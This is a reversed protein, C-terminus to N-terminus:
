GFLNYLNCSKIRIEPFHYGNTMIHLLWCRNRTHLLLGDLHTCLLLLNYQISVFVYSCWHFLLLYFYHVLICPGYIDKLLINVWFDFKYRSCQIYRRYHHFLSNKSSFHGLLWLM